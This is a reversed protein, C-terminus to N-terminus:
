KRASILEVLPSPLLGDERDGLYRSAITEHGLYTIESFGCERLLAKMEEPTFWSQWRESRGRNFDMFERLLKQHHPAVTSEPIAFDFVVGSAAQQGAIFRLTERISSHPLYYVVGLWSFLAPIDRRFGAEALAPGLTGHNFDVPVFHLNPPVGIREEALRTKKWEQTAPQDVEYVELRDSLDTRRYAFTDLGAGLIVYQRTGAAVARELEEEAFRSRITVSARARRLGETAYFAANQHMQAEGSPGIIKLALPDRFILPEADMVQHAARTLAVGEATASREGAM